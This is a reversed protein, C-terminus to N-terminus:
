PRRRDRWPDLDEDLDDLRRIAEDALPGSVNDSPALRRVFLLAARMAKRLGHQSARLEELAAVNAEHNAHMEAHERKKEDALDDIKAMVPDVLAKRLGRVALGVIAALGSVAGAVLVVAELIPNM